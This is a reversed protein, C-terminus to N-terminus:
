AHGHTARKIRGRLGRPPRRTCCRTIYPSMRARAVGSQSESHLLDRLFPMAPRAADLYAQGSGDLCVGVLFRGSKPLKYTVDNVRVSAAAASSFARLSRRFLVRSM